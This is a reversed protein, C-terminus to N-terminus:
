GGQLDPEATREHEHGANQDAVGSITARASTGAAGPSMGASAQAEGHESM